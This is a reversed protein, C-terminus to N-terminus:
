RLIEACGRQSGVARTLRRRRRRAGLRAARQQDWLGRREDLAERLWQPDFNEALSIVWDLHKRRELARPYLFLKADEHTGVDLSQYDEIAAVLIACGLSRKPTAAPQDISFVELRPIRLEM